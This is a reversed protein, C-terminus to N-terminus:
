FTTGSTDMQDVISSINRWGNAHLICLARSAHKQLLTSVVFLFMSNAHRMYIMYIYIYMYLDVVICFLILCLVYIVNYLERRKSYLSKKLNLCNFSQFVILHTFYVYSFIRWIYLYIFIHTYICIYMYIYIYTYIYMYIYMYIYLLNVSADYWLM